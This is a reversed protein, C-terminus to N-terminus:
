SQRRATELRAKIEQGLHGVSTRIDEIAQDRADPSMACITEAQSKLQPIRLIREELDIAGIREQLEAERDLLAFIQRNQQIPAGPPHSRGLTADENTM